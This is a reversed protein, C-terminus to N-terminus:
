KFRAWHNFDKQVELEYQKKDLNEAKKLEKDFMKLFEEFNPYKAEKNFSIVIAKHVTIGNLWSEYKAEKIKIKADQEIKKLYFTRYAWYLRPDNEWFDESSMGFM